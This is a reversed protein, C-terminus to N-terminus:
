IYLCIMPLEWNALGEGKTNSIYLIYMTNYVLQLRECKLDHCKDKTIVRALTYLLHQNM